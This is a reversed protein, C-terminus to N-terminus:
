LADPHMTVTPPGLSDRVALAVVHDTGLNLRRFHWVAPDDQANAFSIVPPDTLRMAFSQLPTSLGAGIAKLYAEKLTWYELFRRHQGSAPTAYLDDVEAAAFFRPAVDLGRAPRNVHEADLGVDRRRTVAIAVLGDTHTLSFRLDYGAPEAIEPKGHRGAAFIWAHPDVAAYRSLATRVLARAALDRRRDADFVFRKNRAAELPSLLPAYAALATDSLEDPRAYCVHVADDALPGARPPTSPGMGPSDHPWVGM